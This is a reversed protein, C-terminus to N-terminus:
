SVMGMMNDIRPNLIKYEANEFGMEMVPFLCHTNSLSFVCLNSPCSSTMHLSSWTKVRTQSFLVFFSVNMDTIDGSGFLLKRLM